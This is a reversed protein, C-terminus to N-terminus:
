AMTRTHTVDGAEFLERAIEELLAPSPDVVPLAGALVAVAGIVYELQGGLRLKLAM